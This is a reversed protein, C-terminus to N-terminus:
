MKIKKFALPYLGIGIFLMLFYRLFGFILDAPFIAKLGIRVGLLLAVGIVVRLIRKWLAVNDTSFDVFRNEFAVAVVFGFVSGLSKVTDDTGAFILGAVCLVGAAFFYVLYKNAKKKQLLWYLLLSMGVGVAWGCVVDKPWHVGLYMRSIGVLVFVAVCVIKAWNKKFHQALTTYITATTQSHGSPFSYSYAYGTPSNDVLLDAAYDPDTNIGAVGIPRTFRFIDKLINNASVASLTIFGLTEGFKKDVSWYFIAMIVICVTEGGIETIMKFIVDLVPNAFQQIFQMIKIEFPM